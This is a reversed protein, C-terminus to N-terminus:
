PRYSFAFNYVLALHLLIIPFNVLRKLSNYRDTRNTPFVAVVLEYGRDFNNRIEQLYSENRDDRLIIQQPHSVRMGIAKVINQLMSLFDGVVNEDRNLYIIYWKNLHPQFM